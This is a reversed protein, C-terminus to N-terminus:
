ETKYSELEKQLEKISQFSVEFSLYINKFVENLFRLGAELNEKIKNLNVSSNTLNNISDELSIHEKKMIEAHNKLEGTLKLLVDLEGLGKKAATTEEEVLTNIKNFKDENNKFGEILNSFNNKLERSINLGFSNKERMEEILGKISKTFDSTSEALKRMEQAVVSFGLGYEKAHAAEIAANMALISSQEAIDEIMRAIEGVKDGTDQISSSAELTKDVDQQGRVILESLNEVSVKMESIEKAIKELSAWMVRITQATNDVSGTQAQIISIVSDIKDVFSHISSVSTQVLNMQVKIMEEVEKLIASLEGTKKDCESISDRTKLSHEFVNTSLKKIREVTLGLKEIFQNIGAGIEGIDDFAIISIRQSLDTQDSTLLGVQSKISKLNQYIEYVIIGYLVTVIVFLVLLIIIFRVFDKSLFASFLGAGTENGSILSPYEQLSYKFQQYFIVGFFSVLFFFFIFGSIFFRFASNVRHITAFESLDIIRLKLKAKILVLNIIRAAVVGNLIGWSLATFFRSIFHDLEVENGRLLDFYFNLLLGSLYSLAGILFTFNPINNFSKQAKYLLKKDVVGRNAMEILAKEIPIYFLYVCFVALPSILIIVIVMKRYFEISLEPSYHLIAPILFTYILNCVLISLFTALIVKRTTDKVFDM